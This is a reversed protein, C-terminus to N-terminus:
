IREVKRRNRLPYEEDVIEIIRGVVLLLFSLGIAFVDTWPYVMFLLRTPEAILGCWGDAFRALGLTIHSVSMEQLFAHVTFPLQIFFHLFLHTLNGIHFFHKGIYGLTIFLLATVGGFAMLFIEYLKSVFESSPFLIWLFYPVIWVKVLVLSTVLALSLLLYLLRYKM